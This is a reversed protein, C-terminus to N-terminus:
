SVEFKGHKDASQKGSTMISAFPIVTSASANRAGSVVLMRLPGLQLIETFHYLRESPIIQRPTSPSMWELKFIANGEFHRAEVHLHQLVGMQFLVISSHERVAAKSVTIPDSLASDTVIQTM